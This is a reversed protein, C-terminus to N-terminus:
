RLGREERILQIMSKTVLCGTNEDFFQLLNNSEALAVELGSVAAHIERCLQLVQIRLYFDDTLFGRKLEEIFFGIDSELRLEREHLEELKRKWALAASFSTDVSWLKLPRGGERFAEVFDQIVGGSFGSLATLSHEFRTAVDDFICDVDDSPLAVLDAGGKVSLSILALKELIINLDKQHVVVELFDRAAFFRAWEPGGERELANVIRLVNAAKVSLRASAEHYSDSHVHYSDSHILRVLDVCLDAMGDQMQSNLADLEQCAVVYADDMAMLGVGVLSMGVALFYHKM